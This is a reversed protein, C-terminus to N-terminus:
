RELRVEVALGFRSLLQSLEASSGFPGCMRPSADTGHAANTPRTREATWQAHVRARRYARDVARQRMAPRVTVTEVVRLRRREPMSAQRDDIAGAARLRHAVLVPGDPDDEVALDVVMALVDLSVSVIM